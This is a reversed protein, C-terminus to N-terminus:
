RFSVEHSVIVIHHRYPSGKGILANNIVALFNEQRKKMIYQKKRRMGRKRDM